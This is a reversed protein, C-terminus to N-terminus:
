TLPAWHTPNEYWLRGYGSDFGAVFWRMNGKGYEQWRATVAHSAEDERAGEQDWQDELEGGKLLVWRGDQQEPPINDILQWDIM